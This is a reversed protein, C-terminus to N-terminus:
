TQDCEHEENEGVFKLLSSEIMNGSHLGKSKDCNKAAPHRQVTAIFDRHKGLPEPRVQEVTTPSQHLDVVLCHRPM